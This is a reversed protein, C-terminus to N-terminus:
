HVSDIVLSLLSHEKSGPIIDYMLPAEILTAKEFDILCPTDYPRILINEGHIDNYLIGKNHLFSLAEVLKRAINFWGKRDTGKTKVFSRM